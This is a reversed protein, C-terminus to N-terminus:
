RVVGSFDRSHDMEILLESTEFALKTGPVTIWGRKIRTPAPSCCGGDTMILVGDWKGRNGPKNVFDTVADFSTGGCANRQPVVTQGRKYRKLTEEYVRTDFVVTDVDYKRTLQALESFILAISGDDMSGSQDIAILIKAVHGRKAGPHIMPYKRSIRRLTHSVDGRQLTGFFQRFVRRWPITNSVSAEIEARMEMPVSGWGDSRGKAEAVANSVIKRAKARLMDEDGGLDGAEGWQSHDGQGEGGTAGGMKEKLEEPWRAMLVNFYYDSMQLHPFSLFIEEVIKIAATMKPDSKIDEGCEPVRGPLLAWSPVAHKSHHLVSNICLDTAINWLEHPDRARHIVHRNLFHQIEHAAVFIQESPPLGLMFEPNYAIYFTDSGGDYGCCATKTDRSIIKRMQRYLSCYFPEHVYLAAAIPNLNFTHSAPDCAKPSRARKRAADMAKSQKEAEEPTLDSKPFYGVPYQTEPTEVTTNEM